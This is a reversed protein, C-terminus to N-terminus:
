ASEARVADAAGFYRDSRRHSHRIEDRRGALDRGKRM